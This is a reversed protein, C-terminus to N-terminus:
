KNMLFLSISLCVCASPSAPGMCPARHPVGDPTELIVGGALPPALGSLLGPQGCLLTESFSKHSTLLIRRRSDILETVRFWESFRGSSWKTVQFFLSLVLREWGALYILICSVEQFITFLQIFVMYFTTRPPKLWNLTQRWSLDHDQLGPISGWTPSGAEGEAQTQSERERHREHIFLYFRKLLFLIDNAFITEWEM